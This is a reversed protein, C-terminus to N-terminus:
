QELEDSQVDIIARLIGLELKQASRPRLRNMVNAVYLGLAEHRSSNCLNKFFTPPLSNDFNGLNIIGGTANTHNPHNVAGAVAGNIAGNGSDFIIDNRFDIEELRPSYGNTSTSAVTAATSSSPGGGGGNTLEVRPNGTITILNIGTPQNVDDNPEQKINITSDNNLSLSSEQLSASPNASNATSTSRANTTTQVTSATAISHNNNPKKAPQSGPQTEVLKRKISEPLPISEGVGLVQGAVRITSNKQQGSNSSSQGVRPTGSYTNGAAASSSTKKMTIGKKHLAAATAAASANSTPTSNSTTNSAPRSSHALSNLVKKEEAAPSSSKSQNAATLKTQLKLLPKEEKEPTSETSGSSKISKSPSEGDSTAATNKGQAATEEEEQVELMEYEEDEEMSVMGDDDQKPDEEQIPQHIQEMLDFLKWSPTRKTKEQEYKKQLVKFISRAEHVSLKNNKGVRAWADDIEKKGAPPYNPHLVKEEAIDALIKDLQIPM